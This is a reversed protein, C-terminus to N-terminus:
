TVSCLDASQPTPGVQGPPQKQLCLADNMQVSDKAGKVFVTVPHTSAVFQLPGCLKLHKGDPGKCFYALGQDLTPCLSLGPLLLGQASVWILVTFQPAHPLASQAPPLPLRLHQYAHPCSPLPQIHFLLMLLTPHGWPEQLCTNWFTDAGSIGRATQWLRHIEERFLTKLFTCLIFSM